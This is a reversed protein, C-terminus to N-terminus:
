CRIVYKETGIKTALRAFAANLEDKIYYGADGSWAWISGSSRVLDTDISNLNM